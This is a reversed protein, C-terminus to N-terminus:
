REGRELQGPDDQRLQQLQTLLLSIKDNLNMVEQQKAWYANHTRIDMLTMAREDGSLMDAAEEMNEMGRQAAKVAQRLRDIKNSVGQIHDGRDEKLFEQLPGEGEPPLDEPGGMLQDIAGKAVELGAVFAEEPPLDSIDVSEGEDAHPCGEELDAGRTATEALFYRPDIRRVYKRRAM